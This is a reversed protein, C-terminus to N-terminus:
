GRRRTLMGTSACSATAVRTPGSRAMISKVRSRCARHGGEREVRVVALLRSRARVAVDGLVWMWLVKGAQCANKEQLMAGITRSTQTRRAGIRDMAVDRDAITPDLARKIRNSHSHVSVYRRVVVHWGRLGEVYGTLNHRRAPHAERRTDGARKEQAM